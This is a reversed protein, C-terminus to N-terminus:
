FCVTTRRQEAIVLTGTEDFSYLIRYISDSFGTLTDTSRITVFFRASDLANLQGETIALKWYGTQFQYNGPTTTSNVKKNVYHAMVMPPNSNLGAGSHVLIYMPRYVTDGVPYFATDGVSVNTFKWIAPGQVFSSDDNIVQQVGNTYLYVIPSVPTTELIGKKYWFGQASHFLSDLRLTDVSNGANM